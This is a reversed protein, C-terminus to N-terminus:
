PHIVQQARPPAMGLQERAIRRLREPRILSSRELQLQNIRYRLDAHQTMLQKSQRSMEYRAHSLWVQLSALLALLALMLLLLGLDRRM